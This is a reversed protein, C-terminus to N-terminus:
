WGPVVALQKINALLLKCYYVDDCGNYPQLQDFFAGM